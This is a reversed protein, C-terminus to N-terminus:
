STNYIFIIFLGKHHYTFCFKHMIAKNFLKKRVNKSFRAAINAILYGTIVACILSSFACLLMYGGNVLIDAMKSGETQVLQTIESMYDPMKLELWVQFAILIFSIFAFLWDKKQLNRFLKLM